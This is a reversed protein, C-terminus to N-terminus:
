TPSDAPRSSLKPAGSELGIYTAPGVVLAALLGAFIGKILAYSAPSFSSSILILVALLVAALGAGAMGFALWTRWRPGRAAALMWGTTITEPLALDGRTAMRRHIEMVIAAVIAALLFGTVLLDPAYAADGFASLAPDGGMIWYALAGNIAFNAIFNTTASQRLHAHFDKAM